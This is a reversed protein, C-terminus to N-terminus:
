NTRGGRPRGFSGSPRAFGGRSRTSKAKKSPRASGAGAGTGTGRCASVAATTSVPPVISKTASCASAKPTTTVQPAESAIPAATESPVSAPLTSLDSAVSPAAAAPAAVNANTDVVASDAASDSTSGSTSASSSTESQMAPISIKAITWTKGGDATVMDSHTVGSGAGLTQVFTSDASELVITSDVYSQEAVTGKCKVGNFDNCEIATGWGLMPGSTKNFSSLLTGTVADEMTQTWLYTAKDALTYTLKIGNKFDTDATQLEGVWQNPFGNSALGYVESSICWATDANPGTCQSQGKPYSGVVSQILDGTGNSIGLWVFLYAPQNAPMQGPYITTSTSIIEHKAPGLGFAPGWSDRKTFMSSSAASTSASLLLSALTISHHM